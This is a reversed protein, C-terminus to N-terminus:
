SCTLTSAVSSLSEPLVCFGDKEFPVHVCIVGHWFPENIDNKNEAFSSSLITAARCPFMMIM